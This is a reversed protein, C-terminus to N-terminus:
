EVLKLQNGSVLYRLSAIYVTAPITVRYAPGAISIATWIGTLAIGIPGTAVSLARTLTANAALTLGKGFVFKAVSNAIVVALKYSAFGGANFAGLLAAAGAQKGFSSTEKEVDKMVEEKEEPSMKEWADELVKELLCREIRELNAKKNFPVNLKECVDTLIERYSVGNNRFINMFTNGGMLSLEKKIEPIYMRHNPNFQKYRENTTLEETWDGKQTIVKVLTDLQDNSLNDLVDLDSDQM